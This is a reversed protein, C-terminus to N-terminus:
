KAEIWCSPGENWADVAHRPLLGGRVRCQRISGDSHKFPKCMLCGIEYEFGGGAKPQRIGIPPQQCKPCPAAGKTILASMDAQMAKIQAALDRADKGRDAQSAEHHKAKTDAIKKALENIDM